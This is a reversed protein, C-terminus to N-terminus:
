YSQRIENVIEGISKEKIKPYKDRIELFINMLTEDIQFIICERKLFTGSDGKQAIQIYCMPIGSQTYTNLTIGLDREICELAFQHFDM